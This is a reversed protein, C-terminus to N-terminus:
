RFRISQEGELGFSRTITLLPMRSCLGNLDARGDSEIASILDDVIEATWRQTWWPMSRPAFAAQVLSRYRRHEDGDMELITRGTLPRVRSNYSSSFMAPARFVAEVTDYSFASYHPVEPGAVGLHLPAGLLDAVSGAHVPGSMRLAAM